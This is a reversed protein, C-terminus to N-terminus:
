VDRRAQLAGLTDLDRLVGPDDMEVFCAQEMRADILRRAGRDGRLKKIASFHAAGWLVPNGRMGEYTPVVVSHGQEPAFAEILQDLHEKTVDPMDGLAILVGAVRGAAGVAARVSTSMGDRHDPNHVFRVDYGRLVDRVRSAEHGTVVVTEDARSALAAEVARVVMAVGDVEALMKNTAGMRASRGAALVAAVIGSQNTGRPLPRSGVEELLGGTGMGMIEKAGVPLDACLRQLVWDFGSVQTSRACGPVGVVPIGQLDGLLLLNGPDVPMGLHVVEGGAAELAMPVVDRRDVIASAGLVLLPSLGEKKMSRLSAALATVEHDCREERALKGDLFALRARQSAAARDLQGDFVGPLRTLVLGARKPTLPAVALLPEREACLAECRAVVEERVAFPITKVTAVMDGEDVVAFAPVTALTLSEHVANIEDVRKPDLRLLGRQEAHLNARGTKADALSLGAGCASRAVRSAAEDEPVDSPDFRAVVVETIGEAGLRALDRAELKRGKKITGWEFRQTHALVAGEAEALPVPGFKM